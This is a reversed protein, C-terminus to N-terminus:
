RVAGEIFRKLEDNSAVRISDITKEYEPSNLLRLSDEYHRQAELIELQSIAAEQRIELRTNYERQHKLEKNIGRVM